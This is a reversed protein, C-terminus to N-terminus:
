GTNQQHFLFLDNTRLTEPPMQSVSSLPHFVSAFPPFYSASSFLGPKSLTFAPPIFVLIHNAALALVYMLFLFLFDSCYDKKDM